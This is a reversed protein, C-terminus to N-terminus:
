SAVVISDAHSVSVNPSNESATPAPQAHQSSLRKSAPILSTSSANSSEHKRSTKPTCSVTRARTATVIADIIQNVSSMLEEKTKVMKEYKYFCKGCVHGATGPDGSGSIIYDLDVFQLRDRKQLEETVLNKWLSVVSQSVANLKRRDTVRTVVGCGLYYRPSETM